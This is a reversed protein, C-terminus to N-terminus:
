RKKFEKKIDLTFQQHKKDEIQKRTVEVNLIQGQSDLTIKLYDGSKTWRSEIREKLINDNYYETWRFKQGNKEIIDKDCFRKTEVTYFDMDSFLVDFLSANGEDNIDSYLERSKRTCFKQDLFQLGKEKFLSSIKLLIENEEKTLTIPGFEYYNEKKSYTMYYCDYTYCSIVDSIFVRLLRATGNCKEALKKDWDYGKDINSNLLIDISWSLDGTWNWNIEDLENNKINTSVEKFIGYEITFPVKVLNKLEKKLQRYHEGNFEYSLVLEKLNQRDKGFYHKAQKIIETKNMKRVCIPSKNNRLKLILIVETKQCM